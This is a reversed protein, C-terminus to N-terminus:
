VAFMKHTGEVTDEGMKMIRSRIATRGPVKFNLTSGHHTYEMLRIFEPKEVEDFPQDCAVIWEALLANFVEQDFIGQLSGHSISIVFYFSRFVQVKKAQNNGRALEVEGDVPPSDKRTYLALFLRYMIPFDNKLHTTLELANYRMAKTITIIKRGGHRCRYHKDGPKGASGESNKPV